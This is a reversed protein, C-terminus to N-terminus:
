YPKTLDIIACQVVSYYVPLLPLKIYASVNGLCLYTSLAFYLSFLKVPYKHREIFPINRIDDQTHEPFKQNAVYPGPDYLHCKPNSSSKSYRKGHGSVITEM